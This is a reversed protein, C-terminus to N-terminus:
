MEKEALKAKLQFTGISTEIYYTGDVRYKAKKKIISNFIAKGM